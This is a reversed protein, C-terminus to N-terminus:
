QGHKTGQGPISDLGGATPAHVRLRQVGPFHRPGRKYTCQDGEHCGQEWTGTLNGLGVGGGLATMRPTLIEAYLDPRPPSLFM